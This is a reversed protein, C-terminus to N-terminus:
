GATGAGTGSRGDENVEDNVLIIHTGRGVGAEITLRFGAEAARERMIQLGHKGAPVAAPDFGCGNDDIRVTLAGAVATLGISAATAAAHKRVNTLAEQLIRLLQVAQGDHLPQWAPAVSLEVTIGYTKTYWTLYERLTAIFDQKEPYGSKLGAISERVDENMSRIVHSLREALEEAAESKGQAYLSRLTQLELQLYQWIQSEGDHIERGLRQRETLIALAKQQELLTEQNRKEQTIDKIILAKGVKRQKGSKLSLLHLQYYRLGAATLREGYVVHRGETGVVDDLVPWVAALERFEGGPVAASEQLIARAAPNLEVIYGNEDIVLLGDVMNDMVAQQAFPLISFLRWRYFILVSYLQSVLSAVVFPVFSNFPPLLSLLNGALTILPAPSLLLLMQRRWGRSRWGRYLMVLAGLFVLVYASALMFFYAPGLSYSLVKGNLVVKDMYQGHWSNTAILGVALWTLGHVLGQLALPPREEQWCLRMVFQCWFFALFMSAYMSVDGWFLAAPLDQCFRKFLMGLLWFTRSAMCGLLPLAGTIKRYRWLYLAVGEMVALTVMFFVLQNFDLQLVTTQKMWM